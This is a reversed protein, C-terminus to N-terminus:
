LSLISRLWCTQSRNKVSYPRIRFDAYPLVKGVTDIDYKLKVQFRDAIENLVEGLPRSFQNEYTNQAQTAAAATMFLLTFTLKKM